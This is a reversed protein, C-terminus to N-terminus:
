VRLNRPRRVPPQPCNRRPSQLASTEAALRDLVARDAPMRNEFTAQRDNASVLGRFAQVTVTQLVQLEGSWRELWSSERAAAAAAAGQFLLSLREEQSLLAARLSALQEQAARSEAVATGRCDALQCELQQVRRM